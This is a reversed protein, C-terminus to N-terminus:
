WKGRKWVHVPSVVWAILLRRHFPNNEPMQARRTCWPYTHWSSLKSKRINNIQRKREDLQRMSKGLRPREKGGWAFMFGSSGVAASGTQLNNCTSFLFSSFFLFFLLSFVILFPLVTPVFLFCMMGRVHGALFLWCPSITEPRFLLCHEFVFTTSSTCLISGYSLGLCSRKKLCLLWEYSCCLICM